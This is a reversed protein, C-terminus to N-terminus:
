APDLNATVAVVATMRSSSVAKFFLFIRTETLRSWKFLDLKQFLDKKCLKLGPSTRVSIKSAAPNPFVKSPRMSAPAIGNKFGSSTEDAKIYM